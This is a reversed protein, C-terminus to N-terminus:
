WLYSLYSLVSCPYLPMVHASRYFSLADQSWRQRHRGREPGQRNPVIIIFIPSNPCPSNIPRSNVPFRRGPKYGACRTFMFAIISSAEDCRFFISLPFAEPSSYVLWGHVPEESSNQRSQHIILLGGEGGELSQLKSFQIVM